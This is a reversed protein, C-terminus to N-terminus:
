CDLWEERVGVVQEGGLRVRREPGVLLHRTRDRTERGTDMWGDIDSGKGM